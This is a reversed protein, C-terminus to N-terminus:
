FNKTAKLLVITDISAFKSQSILSASKFSPRSKENAYLQSCDFSITKLYCGWTPVWTVGGCSEVVRCLEYDHQDNFFILEIFQEYEYM